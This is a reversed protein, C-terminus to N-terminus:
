KNDGYKKEFSKQALIDMFISAKRPWMGLAKYLLRKHQPYVNTSHISSPSISELSPHSLRTSLTQMWSTSSALPWSVATSYPPTCTGWPSLSLTLCQPLPPQHRPPDDLFSGRGGRAPAGWRLQLPLRKLLLSLLSDLCLSSFICIGWPLWTPISGELKWPLPEEKPVAPQSALLYIPQSPLQLQCLWPKNPRSKRWDGQKGTEGLHPRCGLPWSPCPCCLLCFPLSLDFVLLGAWSARFVPFTQECASLKDLASALTSALLPQPPPGQLPGLSPSCPRAAPRRHSHFPVSVQTHGM